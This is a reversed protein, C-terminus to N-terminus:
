QAGAGEQGFVRLLGGKRGTEGHILLHKLTAFFVAIPPNLYPGVASLYPLLYLVKDLLYIRPVHKAFGLRVQLGRCFM